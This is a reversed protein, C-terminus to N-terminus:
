LLRSAAVPLTGLWFSALTTIDHGCFLSHKKKATPTKQQQARCSLGRGFWCTLSRGTPAGVVSGGAGLAFFVSGPVSLLFHCEGRVLLLFCVWSRGRRLVLLLCLAGGLRGLVLSFVVVRRWCCFFFVGGQVLLLFLLVGRVLLLCFYCGRVLLLFAGVAFGFM